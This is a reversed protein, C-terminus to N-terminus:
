AGAVVFVAVADCDVGVDAAVADCRVVVWAGAVVGDAVASLDAAVVAAVVERVAVLGYPSHCDGVAPHRCHPGIWYDM